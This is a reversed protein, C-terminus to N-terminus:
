TQFHYFIEKQHALSLVCAFTPGKEPPVQGFPGKLEMYRSKFIQKHGQGQGFSWLCPQSTIMVADRFPKEAM